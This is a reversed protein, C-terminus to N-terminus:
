KRTRIATGVPVAAPLKMICPRAYGASVAGSSDDRSLVRTAKSTAGEALGAFGQHGYATAAPTTSTTSATTPQNTRRSPVAAPVSVTVTLPLPETLLLGVPM